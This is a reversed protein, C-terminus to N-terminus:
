SICSGVIVAEIVSLTFELHHAYVQKSSHFLSKTWIIDRMKVTVITIVTIISLQNKGSSWELQQCINAHQQWFRKTDKNSTSLIRHCKARLILYTRELHSQFPNDHRHLLHHMASERRHESPTMLDISQVLLRDRELELIKTLTDNSGNGHTYCSAFSPLILMRGKSCNYLMAVKERIGVFTYLRMCVSIMDTIQWQSVTDQTKICDKYKVSLPLVAYFRDENKAAQSNLMMDLFPRHRFHNRYICDFLPVFSPRSTYYWQIDFSLFWIKMNKTRGIHYESIVWVRKSWDEVLYQLFVIAKICSKGIGKTQRYCECPLPQQQQQQDQEHEQEATTAPTLPTYPTFPTEPSNPSSATSHSSSPTIMTAIHPFEHTYRQQSPNQHTTIQCDGRVHRYLNPTHKRIHTLISKNAPNLKLYGLHLDPVALIMTAHHYINNMQRIATKRAKDNRQDISVADVWVYDVNEDASVLLQGCLLELDALAFSTVHAVYDPTVAVQEPVEGWRYSIACYRLGPEDMLKKHM